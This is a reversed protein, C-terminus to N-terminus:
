LSICAVLYTSKGAPNFILSLSLPISFRDTVPISKKVTCGANVFAAKPVYYTGKAQYGAFVLLNFTGFKHFYQLELYVSKSTDAGYFFYSALFNFPVTEGGSLVVQAELMHATTKQSYNFFDMVTTDCFSWYDWVAITVFGLTKSLYFDTEQGGEGTLKYAGWAGLTFGKWSASVAPQISPAHGIDMGRWIFRSVLDVNASVSVAPITDSQATLSPAYFFLCLVAFSQIAGSKIKMFCTYSFNNRKEGAMILFFCFQQFRSLQLCSAVDNQFLKGFM